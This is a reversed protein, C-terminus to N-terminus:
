DSSDNRLWTLWNMNSWLCTTIRKLKSNQLNLLRLAAGNTLLWGWRDRLCTLRQMVFFWQTGLSWWSLQVYCFFFPWIKSSLIYIQTKERCERYVYIMFLYSIRSSYIILLVFSILVHCFMMLRRGSLWPTLYKIRYWAKRRM